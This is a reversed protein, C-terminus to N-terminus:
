SFSYPYVRQARTSEQSQHTVWFWFSPPQAAPGPALSPEGKGHHKVATPAKDWVDPVEEEAERPEFWSSWERSKNMDMGQPGIQVAVSIQFRSILIDLSSRDTSIVIWVVFTELVLGVRDRLHARM